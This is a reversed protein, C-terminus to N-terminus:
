RLNLRIEATSLGGRQPLVTVRVRVYAARQFDESSTETLNFLGDPSICNLRLMGRNREPPENKWRAFEQLNGPRIDLNIAQTNSTQFAANAISGSCILNNASDLFSATVRVESPLCNSPQSITSFLSLAVVSTAAYPATREPSNVLRIDAGCVSQQSEQREQKEVLELLKGIQENQKRLAQEMQQLQQQQRQLQQELPQQAQLAASVLLIPLMM